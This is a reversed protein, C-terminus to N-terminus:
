ASIGARLRGEPSRNGKKTQHMEEDRKAERNKTSPPAAIVTADVITGEQQLGKEALHANITNFISETLQHTEQLRHFKPCHRPM